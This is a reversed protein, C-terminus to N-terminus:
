LIEKCERTTSDRMKTCAVYRETNNVKEIVILDRTVDIAKNAVFAGSVAYVIYLLVIELGM